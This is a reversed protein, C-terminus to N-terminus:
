MWDGHGGGFLGDLEGFLLHMQDGAGDRIRAAVLDEFLEAATLVRRGTRRHALEDPDARSCERMVHFLKLSSAKHPWRTVALEYVVGGTRIDKASIEVAQFRVERLAEECFRRFGKRGVVIM